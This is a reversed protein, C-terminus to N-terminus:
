SPATRSAGPRLVGYAARYSEWGGEPSVHPAAIGFLNGDPSPQRRATWTGRWRRACSPRAGGPLRQGAHAPERVPSAAFESRREQQM